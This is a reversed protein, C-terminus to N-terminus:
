KKCSAFLSLGNGECPTELNQLGRILVGCHCSRVVVILVKKLFAGLNRLGRILVGCGCSRVAVILVKKLFADLNELGRLLVCM